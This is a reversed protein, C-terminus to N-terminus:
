TITLQRAQSRESLEARLLEQHNLVPEYKESKSDFATAFGIRSIALHFFGRSPVTRIFM